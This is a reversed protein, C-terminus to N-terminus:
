KKTSVCMIGVIKVCVKGLKSVLVVALECNWVRAFFQLALFWILMFNRECIDVAYRRALVHM